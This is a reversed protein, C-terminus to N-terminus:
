DATELNRRPVDADRRVAVAEYVRVKGAREDWRAVWRGGLATHEFWPPQAYIQVVEPREAGGTELLM